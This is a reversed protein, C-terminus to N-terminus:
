RPDAWSLEGHWLAYPAAWAWAAEIRVLCLAGHNQQGHSGYTGPDQATM